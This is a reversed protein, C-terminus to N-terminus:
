RLIMIEYLGKGTKHDKKGKLMLDLELDANYRVYLPKSFLKVLFQKIKPEDAFPDAHEIMKPNSLTFVAKADADTFTFTLKSPLHDAKPVPPTIDTYTLELQQSEGILIDNGKALYLISSPDKSLVKPLYFVSFVMHYDGVSGRGWYWYDCIDKMDMVGWNHDHYGTGKLKLIQGQFRITASVTGFPVSPFWGFAEPKQDKDKTTSFSPAVRTFEVDGAIDPLELHLLYKKLDGVVTNPGMVVDCKETSAKFDSAAYTENFEHRQGDPSTYVIGVQPKLPGAASQAPKTFFTVVFTSGDDLNADFYWWEFSKKHPNTRLGDEWIKAERM